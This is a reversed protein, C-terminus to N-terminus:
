HSFFVTVCVIDPDEDCLAAIVCCTKGALFREMRCELNDLKLSPEPQRNVAGERLCDYVLSVNIGRKHMQAKAHRTIFVASSNASVARIHKSLQSRSLHEFKAYGM